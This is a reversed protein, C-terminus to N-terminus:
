PGWHFPMPEIILLRCLSETIEIQRYCDSLVYPVDKFTPATVSNLYTFILDFFTFWPNLVKIPTLQWYLALRHCYSELFFIHWKPSQLGGGQCEIKAIYKSEWTSIGEERATGGGGRVRDQSGQTQLSQSPLCVFNCDLVPRTRPLRIVTTLLFCSSELRFGWSSFSVCFCQMQLPPPLRFFAKCKLWRKIARRRYRDLKLFHTYILTHDHMQTNRDKDHM